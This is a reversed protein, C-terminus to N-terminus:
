EDVDERWYRWLGFLIPRFGDDKMEKYAKNKTWGEIEVRYVGVILGTRDRGHVCHIYTGSNTISLVAFQVNTKSPKFLTQDLLDIPVYVVSINNSIAGSDLGEKNPNLKISKRVGLSSLYAWGENNPQGGRWIGNEILKLNPIGHEIRDSACSTLLLAILTLYIPFLKRM